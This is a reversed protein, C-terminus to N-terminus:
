GNGLSQNNALGSLPEGNLHTHLSPRRLHSVRLEM